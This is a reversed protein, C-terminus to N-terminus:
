PTFIAAYAVVHIPSFRLDNYVGHDYVFLAGHQHLLFSLSRFYLVLADGVFVCKLGYDVILM